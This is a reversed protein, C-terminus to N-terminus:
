KRLVSGTKYDLMAELLQRRQSDQVGVGAQVDLLTSLNGGMEQLLTSLSCSLQALAVAEGARNHSLNAEAACVAALSYCHGAQYQAYAALRLLHQVSAPWEWPLEACLVRDLQAMRSDKAPKTAASGSSSSNNNNNIGAPEWYEDQGQFSTRAPAPWPLQVSTAADQLSQFVDAFLVATDTAMAAITSGQYSMALARQLMLSQM